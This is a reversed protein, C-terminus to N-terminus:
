IIKITLKKCLSLLLDVFTYNKFIIREAFNGFIKSDASLTNMIHNAPTIMRQFFILVFQMKDILKQIDAFLYFAYFLQCILIM